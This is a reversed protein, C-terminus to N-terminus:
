QRQRLSLSFCVSTIGMPFLYASLAEQGEAIRWGKM